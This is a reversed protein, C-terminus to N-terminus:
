DAPPGILEAARHRLVARDPLDTKTILNAVHKEVTRHSIHLRAGIEKNPMREVLLELVEYERVTVGLTRLRVPVRDAGARQQRVTAGAARLASRVAGLVGTAGEAVAFQVEVERLLAVGDAWGDARADGAVLWRGLRQALPYAAATRQAAAFADAAADVRGARGHAVAGALELWQRNWRTRGPGDAALALPDAPGDGALTRLLVGVGVHGVLQYSGPRDRVLEAARAQVEGASEPHGELLACFTEALGAALAVEPSAPDLGTLERLTAAMAPRRGRHAHVGARTVLLHRQVVGLGLRTVTPLLQDVAEAADDPRGTLLAQLALNAQANLSVVVMGLRDAERRARELEAVDGDALWALSGLRVRLLVRETPLRHQEALRLARRYCEASGAPDYAQALLGLAQWGDVAVAPLGAAGAREVARRALEEARGPGTRPSGLAAIAELVDAAAAPGAAPAPGLLDRAARLQAVAEDWRGVDCAARGLRLHLEAIEAAARDPAGAAVEAVLAAAEDFRGVGALAPVLAALGALRLALDGDDALLGDARTLLTVASGPAGDALARRGAEAFWRGAASRQGATLRLAAVQQCRDGPLGPHLRELSDAVRASEEALRGPTTEALLAEVTLPHRFAYRDAAGEDPTVLQLRVAMRLYGLFERDALGTVDQVVALPFRVGLVAAATLLSRGPEGLRDVRENVSRLLGDPLQGRLVETMRWGEAGERLLGAGLVVHLLEEVAFPVGASRTWLEAVLVEPLEAPAVELCQAVLLTTQERDLRHVPLVQASRRAAATRAVTLADGPEDRLTAVLLVPAGALADVLYDVVALTEPDSDHLDDLVLLAGTGRGVATLLRLVAEAVVVLSTETGAAGPTRWEPIWRGLVARYPGLQADDPLAGSRALGLLAETLPRFPVMPGIGSGRGRLVRAGVDEAYRAVEQALRTKGIGAEGTLFVAAGRGQRAGALARTLQDLEAGRGVVSGSGGHHAPAM